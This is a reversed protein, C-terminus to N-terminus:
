KSSGDDLTALHQAGRTGRLVVHELIDPVPAGAKLLAKWATYVADVAEQNFKALQTDSYNLDLEICLHRALDAVLKATNKDM